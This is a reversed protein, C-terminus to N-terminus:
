QRQKIMEFTNLGDSKGFAVGKRRVLLGLGVCFVISSERVQIQFLDFTLFRCFPHQFDRRSTTMM